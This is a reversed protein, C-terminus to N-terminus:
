TSLELLFVLKFIKQNKIEKKKERHRKTCHPLMQVNETM